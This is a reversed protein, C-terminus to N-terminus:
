DLLLFDKNDLHLGSIVATINGNDEQIYSKIIAM